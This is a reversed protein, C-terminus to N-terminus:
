GPYADGWDTLVSSDFLVQSQFEVLKLVGEDEYVAEGDGRANLCQRGCRQPSGRHITIGRPCVYVKETDWTPVYDVKTDPGSTKLGEECDTQDLSRVSREIKIVKLYARTDIFSELKSVQFYKAEALLLQYKAYDYGNSQNYFFPYVKTRLYCLIHMFLDGDRDVFVTGDPQKHNPWTFLAAFYDSGDTLTDKTTTFHREGIQLKVLEGVSESALPISQSAGTSATRGADPGPVSIPQLSMNHSDLLLSAPTVEM